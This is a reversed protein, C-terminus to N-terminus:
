NKRSTKSAEIRRRTFVDMRLAQWTFFIAVLAYIIAEIPNIVAWEWFMVYYKKEIKSLVFPLFLFICFQLLQSEHLINNKGKEGKGYSFNLNQLIPLKSRGLIVICNVTIEKERKNDSTKEKTEKWSSLDCGGCVSLNNYFKITSTM